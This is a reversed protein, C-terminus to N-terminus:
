NVSDDSSASAGVAVTVARGSWWARLRRTVGVVRSGLCTKILKRPLQGTALLTPHTVAARLLYRRAVASRGALDSLLGLVLYANGYARRRMSDLTPCARAFLSDLRKLLEAGNGEIDLLNALGRYGRPQDGCALEYYTDLRGLLAPWISVAKELFQWGEDPQGDQIHKLAIERFAVSYARRKEEPWTPPDGELAGFHKQVLALRFRSFAATDQLTNSEHVRIRVLPTPLGAITFTKALRLWMDYDECIGLRTDFNGAQKFCKKRVVIAPTVIFNDEILSSFLDSPPSVRQSSQPIINGVADVHIFGSYVGDLRPDAALPPILTALFDTEWMDDADLWAIVEGQAAELGSNRAASVGRNRDHRFYRISPEFARVIEPTNDTSGDDIVIIEFPSLTQDFVSQLAQPLYDARNFTPIIVSV